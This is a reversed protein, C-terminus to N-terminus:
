EQNFTNYRYSKYLEELAEFTSKLMYHCGSLMVQELKQLKDYNDPQEKEDEWIIDNLLKEAEIILHLSRFIHDACEKQTM